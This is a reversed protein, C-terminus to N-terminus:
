NDRLVSPPRAKKDFGFSKNPEPGMVVELRGGQMLM